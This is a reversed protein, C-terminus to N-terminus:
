DCIPRAVVAFQVWRRDGLLPLLPRLPAKHGELLLSNIGQITDLQFGCQAFMEITSKRTFFRLHTRDLIGDDAYDWRGGLLLGLSVPLFQVNPISSVIVSGPHTIMKIRTLADWPDALHEVIDNLVICDFSRGAFQDLVAPIEGLLIEDMVTGAEAAQEPLIEVGTIYASPVVRRITAAFGGRGCGVDLFTKAEVPLFRQLEVRASAPYTKRLSYETM